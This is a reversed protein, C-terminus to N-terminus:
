KIEVHKIYAINPYMAVLKDFAEKLSTGNSYVQDLKHKIRVTFKFTMM